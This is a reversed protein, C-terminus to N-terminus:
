IYKDEHTIPCCACSYTNIYKHGCPIILRKTETKKWLPMVIVSVYVSTLQLEQYCSYASISAPFKSQNEDAADGTTMERVGLQSVTPKGDSWGGRADHIVM